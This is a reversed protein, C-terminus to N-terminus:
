SPTAQFVTGNVGSGGIAGGGAGTGGSGGNATVTGISATDTVVILYGGGGGAGGGAAGNGTAAGNGGVGGDNRIVGNNVITKALLVSVPAGGGGGGSIATGTGINCGGAGGATGGGAQVLGTGGVLIPFQAYAANRVAGNDNGPVGVGGPTGGGQGGATGGTGGAAGFSNQQSVGVNAGAGTTTRGNPGGQGTAGPRHNAPGVVGGATIGVGANGNDHVLGNVEITLTGRIWPVFRKVLTSGTRVTLNTLYADRTMTYVAGSKSAWAVTNVGDLDAAGDAGDGFVGLPWQVSSAVPPYNMAM